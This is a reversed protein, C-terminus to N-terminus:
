KFQSMWENINNENISIQTTITSNVLSDLSNIDTREVTNIHYTEKMDRVRNDIALDQEWM